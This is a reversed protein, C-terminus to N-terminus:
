YAKLGNFHMHIKSVSESVLQDLFKNMKDEKNWIAKKIGLEQQLKRKVSNITTVEDILGIEKAQRATFIHADAYDKHNDKKLGRASSVDTIFMDYTDDIVKQLEKEEISTWKRTATGVEKYNGVKVTQTGVGIKEMLEEFNAGQMIVGISGVMSGPNAFIKESWIAAYYSGSAITGSAYSYVPKLQNLEKIAYAIEISPSVAGGPSNIDLLVGKINTDKKISDIEELIDDALLIPGTLSLKYLNPKQLSDENQSSFIFFLIVLLLVSKFNNQIYQVPATIPLFLLKIFRL